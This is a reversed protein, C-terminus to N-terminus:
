VKSTLKGPFFYIFNIETILNVAPTIPIHNSYDRRLYCQLGAVQCPTGTFLVLKGSTLLKKIQSFTNDLRSQLYKSGKLKYLEKEDSIIIHRLNMNDDFAAGCVYGGQGLVYQAVLPFFAGSSSGARMEDNASVAYCTPLELNKFEFDNQPCVKRCAGCNVCLSVDVVPRFFGNKDEQMSIADKACVNMCASCGSCAEYACIEKIQM